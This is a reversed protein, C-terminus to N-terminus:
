RENDYIAEFYYKNYNKEIRNISELIRQWNVYKNQLNINGDATHGLVLVNYNSAIKPPVFKLTHYMFLLDFNRHRHNIILRQLGKPLNESVYKQADEFIIFANAQHKNLEDAILGTEEDDRIKIFINAATCSKIQEVTIKTYHNFFDQGDSSVVIIKKGSKEALQFAQTSKGSARKGVVLIM